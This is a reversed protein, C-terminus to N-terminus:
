LVESMGGRNDFDEASTEGPPHLIRHRLLGEKIKPQFIEPDRPSSAGNSIAFSDDSYDDFAEDSEDMSFPMM